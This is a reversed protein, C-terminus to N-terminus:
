GEGWKRLLGVWLLETMLGLRCGPFGPFLRPSAHVRALGLEWKPKELSLPGFEMFGVRPALAGPIVLLPIKM